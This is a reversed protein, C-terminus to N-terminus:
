GEARTRRAARAANKARRQEEKKAAAKQQDIATEERVLRAYTGKPVDGALNLQALRRMARGRPKPANPVIGRAARQGDVIARLLRREIGVNQRFYGARREFSKASEGAPAGRRLRANVDDLLHESAALSRKALEPSRFAATEVPDPDMINDALSEAYPVNELGSLYAIADAVEQPDPEAPRPSM